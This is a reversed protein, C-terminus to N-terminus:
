PTSRRLSHNKLFWQEIERSEVLTDEHRWCYGRQRSARQGARHLMQPVLQRPEKKRYALGREFMRLFFGSIGVITNPIAPPSKVAGTTASVSLPAARASNTFTTALGPSRILTTRSPPTKLPCASLTGAWPTCFTSARMRKVRAVVDGITYNRMHGMHMTGSPYPLM